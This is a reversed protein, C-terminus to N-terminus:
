RAGKLANEAALKTDFRAVDRFTGLDFLKWTGNNWVVKLAPAFQVPKRM